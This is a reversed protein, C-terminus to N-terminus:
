EPIRAWSVPHINLTEGDFLLYIWNGDDAMVFTADEIHGGEFKLLIQENFVVSDNDGYKLPNWASM